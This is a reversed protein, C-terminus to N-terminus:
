LPSHCNRTKLPLGIRRLLDARNASLISARGLLVSPQIARPLVRELWSMAQDRIGWRWLYRLRSAHSSGPNSRKKLDTLLTGGRGEQGVRTPSSNAMITPSSFSSARKYNQAAEDAALLYAQGLQDHALLHIWKSRRAARAFRNMTFHAIVHFHQDSSIILSLPDL